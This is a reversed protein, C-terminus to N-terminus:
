GSFVITPTISPNYSLDLDAESLDVNGSFIVTSSLGVSFQKNIKVNSLIPTSGQQAKVYDASVQHTQGSERARGAFQTTQYLDLIGFKVNLNDQPNITILNGTTLTANGLTLSSLGEVDSGINVTGSGKM